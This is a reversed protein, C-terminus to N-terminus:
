DLAHRLHLALRAAVQGPPTSLLADTAFGPLGPLGPLALTPRTGRDEVPSLFSRLGAEGSFRGHGRVGVSTRFRAGRPAPLRESSRRDTLEVLVPVLRAGCREGVKSALGTAGVVCVLDVDTAALVIADPTPREVVSVLGAPVSPCAEALAAAYASWTETMAAGSEIVVANGAVLAAQVASAAAYLPQGEDVVVAVVGYPQASRGAVVAAANGDIWRLHEVARVVEAMADDIGFSVAEQLLGALHGSQRWVRSRWRRLEKLRRPVGTAGWREQALRAREVVASAEVDVAGSLSRLRRM